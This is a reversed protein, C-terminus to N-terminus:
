KVTITGTMGQDLHPVCTFDYSGPADITLTHTVETGPNLIVEIGLAESTFTHPEADDVTFVLNYSKGAELTLDAPLFSYPLSTTTIPLTEAGTAAVPATTATPPSPTTKEADGGSSCAAAALLLMLLLGLFFVVPRRHM